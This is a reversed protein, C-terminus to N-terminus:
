LGQLNTRKKILTLKKTTKTLTKTTKTSSKSSSPSTSTTSTATRVFVKNYKCLIKRNAMNAFANISINKM